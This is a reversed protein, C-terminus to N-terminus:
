RGRAPACIRVTGAGEISVPVCVSRRHPRAEAMLPWAMMPVLVVAAISRTIDDKRHPPLWIRLRGPVRHAWSISGIV